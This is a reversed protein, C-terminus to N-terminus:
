GASNVRNQLLEAYAPVPVESKDGPVPLGGSVIHFVGKTTRRDNRPNHLVGQQMRYSDIYPSHFENSEFPLSLERALGKQDLIFTEGPLHIQENVGNEHLYSNLFNQIRQDAPCRYKALLRRQQSYNKLLSDAIKLYHQNEKDEVECIPQDLAALQLNIHQLHELHLADLSKKHEPKLPKNM